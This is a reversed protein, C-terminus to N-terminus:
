SRVRATNTLASADVLEKLYSAPHFGSNNPINSYFFTPTWALNQVVTVLRNAVISSMSM